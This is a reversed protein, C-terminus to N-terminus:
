DQTPGPSPREGGAEGAADPAILSRIVPAAVRLVEELDADALDPIRLLYRGSAIGMMIAAFLGARLRADPLDSMHRAIVNVSNHTIHDRLMDAAEESTMSARLLVSMPSDIEQAWSGLMGRLYNETSTSANGTTLDDIPIDFHVTERFLDRKSGFYKIVSSKDAEAEAAIMRITAREYGVQAFTKRAAHLIRRRTREGKTDPFTPPEPQRRTDSSQTVTM